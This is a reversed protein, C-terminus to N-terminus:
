ILGYTRLAEIHKCIRVQSRKQFDPCSCFYKPQPDASSQAVGVAYMLGSPRDGEYPYLEMVRTSPVQTRPRVMYLTSQGSTTFSIRLYLTLQMPEPHPVAALIPIPQAAM